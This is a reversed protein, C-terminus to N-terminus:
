QFKAERFRQEYRVPDVEPPLYPRLDEARLPAAGRNAKSFAAEARSFVPDNSGTFTLSNGAAAIIWKWDRLPDINEKLILAPYGRDTTMKYRALIASSSSPPDFYPALQVADSLSSAPHAELYAKLASRLNERVADEAIRRLQALANLVHDESSTDLERSAKLWQQPTLLEFEPIAAEPRDRVLQRLRESRALWDAMTEEAAADEPSSNATALRALQARAADVERLVADRRAQADRTRAALADVQQRFEAAERRMARLSVTEHLAGALAIVAAGTLLSKELFTMTIVAASTSVIAAAASSGVGAAIAPGLATPATLLGHAALDSALGAVSVTIGRRLFFTRLQDLARSVRKQAADDSVGLAAGVERLSKNEFFRLLIAARDPAPLSEVAEDLVPEIEPWSSPPPTMLSAALAADAERRQRRAERRVVDIATRRAVVHLWAVLPTGSPICRANGALDAFVSQTVEEALQPSRVHRRAVSYVLNLHRQVIEAFAAQTGKAAYRHLLDDDRDLM